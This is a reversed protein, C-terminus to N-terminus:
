FNKSYIQHPYSLVLRNLRPNSCYLRNLFPSLEIKGSGCESNNSYSLRYTVPLLNESSNNQFRECGTHRLRKEQEQERKPKCTMGECLYPDDRIFLPHSYEDKNKGRTLMKFGWRHMKRIFSHINSNKYFTKSLIRESFMSSDKIIFSKGDPTWCVIDEFLPNSLIDILHYPFFNKRLKRNKHTTNLSCKKSNQLCQTSSLDANAQPILIKKSSNLRSYCNPQKELDACQPPRHLNHVNILRPM